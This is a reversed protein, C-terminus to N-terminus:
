VVINSLLIPAKLLDPSKPSKEIYELTNQRIDGEMFFPGAAHAYGM